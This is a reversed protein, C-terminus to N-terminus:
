AGAFGSFPGSGLLILYRRDPYLESQKLLRWFSQISHAEYERAVANKLLDQYLELRCPMLFDAYARRWLFHVASSAKTLTQM